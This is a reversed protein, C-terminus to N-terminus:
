TLNITNHMKNIEIGPRVIINNQKLQIILGIIDSELIGCYQDLKQNDDSRLQIELM